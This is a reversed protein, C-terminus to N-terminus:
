FRECPYKKFCKADRGEYSINEFQEQTKWVFIFLYTNNLMVLVNM